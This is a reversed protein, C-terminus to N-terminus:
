LARMRRAEGTDRLARTPPLFEKSRLFHQNQGEWKDEVQLGLGIIVGQDNGLAVM